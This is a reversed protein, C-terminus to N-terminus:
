GGYDGLSTTGSDRFCPIAQYNCCLLLVTGKPSALPPLPENSLFSLSLSRSLPSYCKESKYVCKLPKQKKLYTISIKNPFTSCM